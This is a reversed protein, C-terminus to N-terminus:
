SIAKLIKQWHGQRERQLEAIRQTLHAHLDAGGIAPPPATRPEGSWQAAPASCSSLGSDGARDPPKEETGKETEHASRHRPSGERRPSGAQPVSGTDRKHRGGESTPSAGASGPLQGLETNLQTLERTLQQVRDLEDRVSATHERHMAIFMQVMMIMDNHFTEMLRMQQQWMALPDPGPSLVPEWEGWSVTAAAAPSSESRVPEARRLDHRGRATSRVALSRRDRDPSGQTIVPGNAVPAAPSAGAELPVDARSIGQPPTDYRLVFTFLGMRIVDGEALWAWRVLIGNVRVGTRAALDVIWLGLPTRVLSAHYRSLSDDSLVFQCHDSRGVLALAGQMEWMSSKGDVRFPLELVPRPLSEADLGEEDRALFPDPAEARLPEECPRDTRHIRYRGVQILRGPDFWGRSQAEQGDWYTKTRSELDVCFVRSAIAQLYVHRRSIEPDDLVLDATSQRGILLFPRPYSLPTYAGGLSSADQCVL